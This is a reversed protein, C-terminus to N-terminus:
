FVDRGQEWQKASDMLNNFSVVMGQYIVIPYAVCRSYGFLAWNLIAAFIALTQYETELLVKVLSVTIDEWDHLFMIIGGIHQTNLYYSYFYLMLTVLHHLFMEKYDMRKGDHNDILLTVMSKIHYGLTIQYYIKLEPFFDNNQVPFNRWLNEFSNELNGGLIPPLFDTKSLVYYGYAVIFTFYFIGSLKKAAKNTSVIRKVEDNKEKNHRYILNWFWNKFLKESTYIIIASVFAM